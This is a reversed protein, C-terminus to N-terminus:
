NWHYIINKDPLKAYKSEVKCTWTSNRHNTQLYLKVVQGRRLRHYPPITGPTENVESVVVALGEDAAYLLEPVGRLFHDLVGHDVHAQVHWTLLTIAAESACPHLLPSAGKM